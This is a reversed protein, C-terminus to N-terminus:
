RRDVEGGRALAADIRGRYPSHPYVVFFARARQWAEEGKGLRALAEVAITEREQVMMGSAFRRKHQDGLRLAQSPQDALAQRAARLLRFEESGAGDASIAAVTVPARRDATPSSPRSRERRPLSLKTPTAGERAVVGGQDAALVPEFTPQPQEFDHQVPRIEPIQSRTEEHGGRLSYWTGTGLGVAAAAIMLKTAHRSTRAVRWGHPQATAAGRGVRMEVTRALQEVVAASPTEDHARALWDRLGAPARDNEFLRAPLDTDTM